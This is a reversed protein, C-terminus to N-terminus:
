RQSRAAHKEGAPGASSAVATPFAHRALERFAVRPNASAALSDYSFLVVGAAGAARAAAIHRVTQAATLRYAGVGAWVPRGGAAARVAEIQRSYRSLDNTYSMPCVADILGRRAWDSWDQMRDRAAEHADPVVAASIWADPRRSKVSARLRAVLDAVRHRRYEAWRAPFTDAYVAPDRAARADLRVREAPALSPAVSQRFAALAAASYDFGPGPFRIYDLHLGDIAYRSALEDVLRELYRASAAHIPSAYLGEVARNHTRTWQALQRVYAPDRPSLKALPRALDKPVMLWEPHARVLHTPDSPLTVASSVLGVNLWAHVRLGADHASAITRQLPDFTPALSGRPEGSGAFLSDGRARVQVLLTNFGGQQAQRVLADVREPTTLTSRLVWLARTESSPAALSNPSHDALSTAGPSPGAHDATSTSGMSSLAVAIAAGFGLRGFWRRVPQAGYLAFM